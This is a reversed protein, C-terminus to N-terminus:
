KARAYRGSADKNWRRQRNIKMKARVHEAIDDDADRYRRLLVSLVIFVDAAEESWDKGDRIDALLETAEECLKEAVIEPTADPFTRQHWEAIDHMLIHM